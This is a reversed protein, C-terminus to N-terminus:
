WRDEAAMEEFPVHELIGVKELRVSATAGEGYISIKVKAKTGNGLAGDEIYDWPKNTTGHTVSPAGGFDEIGSPHKNPRKLKMGARNEAAAIPKIMRNGMSEEPFGLEVIKQLEDDDKPVFVTNFQGETREHYESYDINDEFIRAYYLDGEFVGYKTKKKATM